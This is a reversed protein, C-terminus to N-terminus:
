SYVSVPSRFFRLSKSVLTNLVPITTSIYWIHNAPSQSWGFGMFLFVHACLARIIGPQKDRGKLAQAM